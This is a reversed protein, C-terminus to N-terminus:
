NIDLPEFTKERDENREELEKVDMEKQSDSTGVGSAVTKANVTDSAVSITPTKKNQTELQISQQVGSMLGTLVVRPKRVNENVHTEFDAIRITTLLRIYGNEVYGNLRYTGEIKMKYAKLVDNTPIEYSGLVTGKDSLGMHDAIFGFTSVSIPVFPLLQTEEVLVHGDSRHSHDGLHTISYSTIRSTCRAVYQILMEASVSNWVGDCILVLATDTTRNLPETKVDPWAIIMQEKKSLGTNRKYSHDGFARSVNVGMNIRGSVVEGGANEVRAREGADDPKNDVSLPFPKGNRCLIARSDGLNAAYIVNDKILVVIATCGSAIGPANAKIIPNNTYSQRISILERISERTLLLDDFAMFAEQLALEYRGGKYNANTKLIKPLRKAAFIAVEAGNHGDFVAWLSASKDFSPLCIHADEQASRWGQVCSAAFVVGPGRGDESVPKDIVQKLYTEGM